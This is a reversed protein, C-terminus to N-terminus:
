LSLGHGLGPGYQEPRPKLEGALTDRLKLAAGRVIDVWGWLFVLCASTQQDFVIAVGGLFATLM